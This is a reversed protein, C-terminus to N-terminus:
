LHQSPRGCKRPSELVHHPRLSGILVGSDDCVAIPLGRGASAYVTHLRDDPRCVDFDSRM